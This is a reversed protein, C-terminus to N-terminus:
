AREDSQLNLVCKLLIANDSTVGAEANMQRLELVDAKYLRLEEEV